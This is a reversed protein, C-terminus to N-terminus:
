EKQYHTCTTKNSKGSPSTSKSRKVKMDGKGDGESYRRKRKSLLVTDKEQGNKMNTQTMSSAARIEEGVSAKGLGNLTVDM